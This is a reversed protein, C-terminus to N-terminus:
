AALGSSITKTPLATISLEASKDAMIQHTAQHAGFVPSASNGVDVTRTMIQVTFEVGLMVAALRWVGVMLNQTVFLTKSQRKPTDKEQCEIASM